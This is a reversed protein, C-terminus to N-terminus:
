GGLAYYIQVVTVASNVSNGSITLTLTDSEDVTPHTGTGSYVIPVKETTETGPAAGDRNAGVGELVDHGHQDLVTVDYNDTPATTGPNTVLDLLRGEIAPLVATPYTGDAADGTCTYVLSRINGLANHATLTTIGAM